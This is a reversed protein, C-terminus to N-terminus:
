MRPVSNKHEGYISRRFTDIPRLHIQGVWWSNFRDSKYRDTKAISIPIWGAIEYVPCSGTVLIAIDSARDRPKVILQGDKWRTHKVEINAGVDAGRKLTNDISYDYEMGLYQHVVIEAAIADMQVATFEFFNGKLRKWDHHHEDTFEFQHDFQAWYRQARRTGWEAIKFQQEATLRYKMM